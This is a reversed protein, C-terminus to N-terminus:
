QERGPVPTEREHEPIHLVKKRRSLRFPFAPAAAAEAGLAVCHGLGDQQRPIGIAAQGVDHGERFHAVARNQLGENGGRLEIFQVIGYHM